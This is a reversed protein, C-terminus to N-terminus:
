TDGKATKSACAAGLALTERCDDHRQCPACEYHYARREGLQEDWNLHLAYCEMLRQMDKGNYKEAKARPNENPMVFVPYDEYDFTDCAVILHTAGKEKAEDLWSRIEEKTTSM